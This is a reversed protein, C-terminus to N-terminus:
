RKLELNAIWVSGRGNVPTVLFRAQGYAVKADKVSVEFTLGNYTVYATKGIYSPALHPPIKAKPPKPAIRTMDHFLNTSLRDASVIDNHGGPFLNCAVGSVRACRLM